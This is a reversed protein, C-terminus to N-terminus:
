KGREKYIKQLKAGIVFAIAFLIFLSLLVNSDLLGAPRGQILLYNINEKTVFLTNVPSINLNEGHTTLIQTVSGGFGSVQFIIVILNLWLFFIVQKYILRSETVILIAGTICYLSNQFFIYFLEINNNSIVLSLIKLIIISSFYIIVKLKNKFSNLIIYFAIMYSGWGLLQGFIIEIKNPQDIFVM